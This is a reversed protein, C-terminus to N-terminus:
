KKWIMDADLLKQLEERIESVPTLSAKRSTTIIKGGVLGYEVTQPYHFRRKSLRRKDLWPAQHIPLYFSFRFPDLVIHFHYLDFYGEEFEVKCKPTLYMRIHHKSANTETEWKKKAEPSLHYIERDGRRVYNVTLCPHGSKFIKELVNHKLPFLDASTKTEHVLYCLYYCGRAIERDPSPLADILQLSTEHFRVKEPVVTKPEKAKKPRPPLPPTVGFKFGRHKPLFPKLGKEERKYVIIPDRRPPKKAM